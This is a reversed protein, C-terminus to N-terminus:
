KSTMSHIKLIFTALKESDHRVPHTSDIIDSTVLKAHEIHEESITVPEGKFETGLNTINHNAAIWDVVTESTHKQLAEIHDNMSFGGTEGVETAVNCVYIKTSRSAHIANKIGPVMLNPLISTYLSGPGLILIDADSIEKLAKPYASANQPEISINEIRGGRETIKSEGEVVEGSSLTASLKLNDTTAPIIQGKVALVKSSEQLANEFNGAVHSMATIFLNGFSHGKLGNGQSFRYQLLEPLLSNEDSMAVICNRFDGPPLVGLERRLIGSSGGDDAVGIIATLNNTHLKLGRLLVSLGTGGGIAVIKPGKDRSMRTYLTDGISELSAMGVVMPALTRYLGVIALTITVLGVWLLLIGEWYWPLFDPFTVLFMRRVFFTTGFSCISIGFAGLVIWRKIGIGPHLLKILNILKSKNPLDTNM